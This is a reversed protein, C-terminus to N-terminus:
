NCQVHGSIVWLACQGQDADSPPQTGNGRATRDYDSKTRREKELHGAPMEAIEEFLPDPWRVVPLVMRPVKGADAFKIAHPEM